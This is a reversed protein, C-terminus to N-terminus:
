VVPGEAGLDPPAEGVEEGDEGGATVDTETIARILEPKTKLKAADLGMEEALEKLKPVTLAELQEPDLHGTEEGETGGDQPPIDVGPDPEGSSEPATAVGTPANDAGVVVAVGRSVLRAVEEDSVDVTKGLLVPKVRGTKGDRAGYTGNIIKVTKM